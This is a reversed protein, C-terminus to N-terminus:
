KLLKLKNFYQLEKFSFVRGEKVGTFPELNDEYLGPIVVTRTGEFMIPQALEVEYRNVEPEYVNQYIESVIAELGNILALLEDTQAKDDIKLIVRDGMSFNM